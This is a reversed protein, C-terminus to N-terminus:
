YRATPKAEPSIFLRDGTECNILWGCANSINEKIGWEIKGIYSNYFYKPFTEVAELHTVLVIADYKDKHDKVAALMSDNRSDIDPHGEILLASSEKVEACLRENLEDATGVARDMISSIILIKQGKFIKELKAAVKRVNETGTKTLQSCCGKTEACRLVVIMKM